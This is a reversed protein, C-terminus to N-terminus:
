MTRREKLQLTSLLYLSDPLRYLQVQLVCGWVTLRVTVVATCSYVVATQTYSSHAAGRLGGDVSVWGYM